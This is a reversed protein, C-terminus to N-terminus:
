NSNSYFLHFAEGFELGQLIRLKALGVFLVLNLNFPVLDILEGNGPNFSIKVEFHWLGLHGIYVSVTNIVIYSGRVVKYDM